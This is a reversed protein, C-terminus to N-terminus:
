RGCTTLTRVLYKNLVRREELRIQAKRSRAAHYLATSCYPAFNPELDPADAMAQLLAQGTWPLITNRSVHDSAYQFPHFRHDVLRMQFRQQLFNLVEAM